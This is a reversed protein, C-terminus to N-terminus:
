KYCKHRTIHCFTFFINYKKNINLLDLVSQIFVMYPDVSLHLTQVLVEGDKLNPALTTKELRFNEPVPAGNKGITFLDISTQTFTAVHTCYHQRVPCFCITWLRNYFLIFFYMWIFNLICIFERGPRSNLVVRQVQMRCFNVKIVESPCATVNDSLSVLGPLLPWAKVHASSM